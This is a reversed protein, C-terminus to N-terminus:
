SEQTKQLESQITNQQKKESALMGAEERIQAVLEQKQQQQNKLQLVKENLVAQINGITESQTKRYEVYRKMYLLRRHAQNFNEASLLFLLKDNKNKNRYAMRVMGAYEQRLKELDEQLIEIVQLNNEIFEQFLGVESEINGILTSRQRIKSNILSLKGISNKENKESEKLLRSTYEIQQRADNKKKQLDSISQSFVGLQFLVLICTVGLLKM